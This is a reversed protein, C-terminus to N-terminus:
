QEREMGEQFCWFVLPSGKNETFWDIQHILETTIFKIQSMMEIKLAAKMQYLM